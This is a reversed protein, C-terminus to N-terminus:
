FSQCGLLNPIFSRADLNVMEVLVGLHVLPMVTGETAAVVEDLIVGGGSKIGTWVIANNTGLRFEFAKWLPVLGALQTALVFRGDPRAALEVRQFLGTRPLVLAVTGQRTATNFTVFRAVPVPIGFLGPQETHDIWVLTNRRSDLALAVVDAPAPDLVNGPNSSPGLLREWRGDAVGLQWVERTRANASDRGGVMYLNRSTGSLVYRPASRSGPVATGAPPTAAATGVLTGDDEMLMSVTSGPAWNKPIAVSQLGANFQAGSYGPEVPTAFTLNSNTFLARASATISTTVDIQVNGAGIAIMTNSLGPTIVSVGPRLNIGTPNILYPDRSVKWDPRYKPYCPTLTVCRNYPPINPPAQFEWLPTTVYAYHDRLRGNFRQDREFSAFGGSSTEM